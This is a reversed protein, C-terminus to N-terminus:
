LTEHLQKARERHWAMNMREFAPLADDLNKAASAVDGRAIALEADALQTLAIEHASQRKVAIQMALELYRREHKPTTASRALARYTMAAGLLDRQRARLLARAAFQRAEESRGASTLADTLWGFNLSRFLRVGRPELWSTAERLRQVALPTGELIWLAYAGASHAMSFSFLSRVQEGIRCAQTASDLAEAWRGQWLLVAARIGRISAEVEHDMRQAADLAEGLCEEAQAFLGRDSIALAKCALSYALGVAPRAGTRHQRKIAIAEDLLTSALDYESTAARVQGLVARVQVALRDDGCRRATELARACHFLAPRSDGLAYSIYGLWYDTRAITAPDSAKDAIEAARRFVGLDERSADFVCALGLRHVIRIWGEEVERTREQLELAKLAARYQAKARDLASAVIAKDGAVEAYRAAEAHRGGAAYHYALAEYAEGRGDSTGRLRLAEAIRLHMSEREYIGIANYIASRTIGHKFRLSGTREDAFLLDNEALARLLSEDQARALVTELLWLPVVAGIVAAARVTEAQEAPIRAVRSAILNDLWAAGTTTRSLRGGTQVALYCLEEIFLANGGSQRHIDGAVFPDVGPLLHALAQMSEAETFPVLELWRANGLDLDIAARDRMLILLLLGPQKCARLARVVQKSADDAWQWDDILIVQARTEGLRVILSHIATIPSDDRARQPVYPVAPEPERVGPLEALRSPITDARVSADDHRVDLLSRVIQLFPQLPEASLHNECSGRHIQVNSTAARRLFEEALRSKGVGAPGSVAVCGHGGQLVEQLVNELTKLQEVRGVMVGLGRRRVGEFRTNAGTLSLIPHVLVTDAAGRLTLRRALGATFRHRHPGLAEDSVLIQDTEAAQALRAAINPVNGLLQVRGLEADGEGLLVLGAHIGTHLRLEVPPKGLRLDRVARHLELAARTARFTDDEDVTPYGFIALIGDGLVQTIRGRHRPIVERCLERVQGVIEAYEEAELTTALRTSDCLDAFCVTLYQRRTPRSTATHAGASENM